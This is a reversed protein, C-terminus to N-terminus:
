PPPTTASLGQEGTDWNIYGTQLANQMATWAALATLGVFAALLAYEVLDQADDGHFLRMLM